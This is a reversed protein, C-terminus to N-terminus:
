NKLVWKLEFTRRNFELLEDLNPNALKTQVALSRTTPLNNATEFTLPLLYNLSSYGSCLNPAHVIDQLRQRWSLMQVNFVGPLLFTAEMIHIVADRAVIGSDLHTEAIRFAASKLADMQASELDTEIKM